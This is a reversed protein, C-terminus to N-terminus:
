GRVELIVREVGARKGGEWVADGEDTAWVERVGMDKREAMSIFDAVGGGVGFYIRKAAVLAVAEDKNNQLLSGLAETFAPLSSPSYITESALILTKRSPSLHSFSSNVLSVFHPSWAGSIFSITINHASLTSSFTSLLSPTIELEL